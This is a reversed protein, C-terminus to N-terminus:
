AAALLRPAVDHLAGDGCAIFEAGVHFLYRDLQECHRTACLIVLPPKGDGSPLQIVFRGDEPFQIESRLSLGGPSLGGLVVSQQPGARGEDCLAAGVTALVAARAARRKDRRREPSLRALSDVIECFRESSLQM